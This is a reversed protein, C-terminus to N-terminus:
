HPRPEKEHDRVINEAVFRLKMHGEQSLKVLLRFAADPDLHYRAMLLGEAQGIALRTKLAEELGAVEGSLEGARASAAERDDAARQRDSAARARGAGARARDDVADGRDGAALDRDAGSNFRDIAAQDRDHEYARAARDRGSARLDRHQGADDRLRAQDDGADALADWDAALKDREEALAQLEEPTPEGSLVFRERERLDAEAADLREQWSEM